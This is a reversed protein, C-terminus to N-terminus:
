LLIKLKASALASLSSPLYCGDEEQVFGMTSAGAMTGRHSEAELNRGKLLEKL